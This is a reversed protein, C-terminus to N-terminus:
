IQSWLQRHTTQGFNYIFYVLLHILKCLVRIYRILYYHIGAIFSCTYPLARHAFMGIKKKIYVNIEKYLNVVRM